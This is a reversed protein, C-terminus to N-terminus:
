EYGTLGAARIAAKEEPTDINDTMWRAIELAKARIEEDWFEGSDVGTCPSGRTNEDSLETM